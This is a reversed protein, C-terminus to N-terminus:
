DKDYSDGKQSNCTICLLQFNNENCQGGKSHPKIHDIACPKDRFPSVTNGFLTTLSGCIQCTKSFREWIKRRFKGTLYKRKRTTNNISAKM